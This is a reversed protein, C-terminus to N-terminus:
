KGFEVHLVENGELVLLERRGDPLVEIWFDAEEDLELDWVSRGLRVLGGSRGPRVLYLSMGARTRVLLDRVGDGGVDDVFRATGGPGLGKTAVRVRTALDPHPSFRGGQNLFVDIEVEITEGGGTLAEILDPRVTGVVLDDRGDNNLDELRPSGAFGALVLLQQPRGEEGFLVETADREPDNTFVMVQTRIEDSRKDGAFIICDARGDGDLQGVAAAYSVDLKRGRDVEVPLPMRLEPAGGGGTWVLLETSTQALLDLDGDGDWDVLQPAPIRTAVRLLPGSWYTLNSVGSGGISLEFSKGRRTEVGASSTDETRIRARDETALLVRDVDLRPLAVFRAGDSDREQLHVVYGGPGPTLLDVLGDADIDRVGARWVVVSEEEALQWLLEAQGLPVFRSSEAQASPRWAYIGDASWLVVESGADSHVDGVALAVVDSTLELRHDAAQVFRAGSARALRVELARRAKPEGAAPSTLLFLDARADGNLDALFAERVARDTPLQVSTTHAVEQTVLALSLAGLIM